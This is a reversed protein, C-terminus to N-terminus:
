APLVGAGHGTTARVKNLRLGTAMRTPSNRLGPPAFRRWTRRLIPLSSCSPFGAVVVLNGALLWAPSVRCRRAFVNFALALPLLLRTAGGAAGRWMADDLFCMLVVYAIGLRWWPDDERWRRLFFFAAQVTIGIVAGFGIWAMGLDQGQLISALSNLWEDLLSNFPWAVYGDIQKSSGLHWGAVVTSLAVLALAPLWRRLNSRSFGPPMAWPPCPSCRRAAASAPWEWCGRLGAMVRRELALMSAALLALTILDTL